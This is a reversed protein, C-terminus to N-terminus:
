LLMDAVFAFDADFGAIFHQAALRQGESGPSHQRHM